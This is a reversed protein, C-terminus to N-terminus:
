PASGFLIGHDIAEAPDVLSMRSVPVVEVLGADFLQRLHYRTTKGGLKLLRELQHSSVVKCQAIALLLRWKQPTLLIDKPERSYRGRRSAGTMQSSTPPKSLTKM